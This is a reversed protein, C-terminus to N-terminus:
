ISFSTPFMCLTSNQSQTAATGDKTKEHTTFEQSLGLRMQLTVAIFCVAVYILRQPATKSWQNSEVSAKRMKTTGDKHQLSVMRKPLLLSLNRFSQTLWKQSRKGNTPLPIQWSKKDKWQSLVWRTTLWWLDLSLDRRLSNVLALFTARQSLNYHVITEANPPITMQGTVTCHNVSGSSCCHTALFAGRIAIFHVATFLWPGPVSYM